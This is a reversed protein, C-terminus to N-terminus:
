RILSMIKNIDINLENENSNEKSYSYSFGDHIWLAYITDEYKNIIVKVGGISEDKINTGGYIGSVDSDGKEMNFESKDKYIVRAHTARKDKGIVVYKEVEKDVIIPVEFGLYKQMESANTVETIPNAISATHIKENDKSTVFLLGGVLIGICFLFILVRGFLKCKEKM